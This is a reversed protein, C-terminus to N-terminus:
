SDCCRLCPSSLLASVASVWGHTRSFWWYGAAFASAQACVPVSTLVCRMSVFRAFVVAVHHKCVVRLMVCCLFRACFCVVCAGLFLLLRWRWCTVAPHSSRAIVGALPCTLSLCSSLPVSKRAREQACFACVCGGWHHRPMGHIFMVDGSMMNWLWKNIRKLNKMKALIPCPRNASATIVRTFLVIYRHMTFAFPALTQITLVGGGGGQRRINRVPFVTEFM